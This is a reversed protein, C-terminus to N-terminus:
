KYIYQIREVQQPNDYSTRCIWQGTNDYEYYSDGDIRNGYEDYLCTLCGSTKQSNGFIRQYVIRTLYGYKDYEYLEKQSLIQNPSNVFLMNQHQSETMRGKDDYKNVTYGEMEGNKNYEKTETLLGQKNYSSVTYRGDMYKLSDSEISGDIGIRRARRYFDTKTKPNTKVEFICHGQPDYLRSTQVENIPQGNKETVSLTTTLQGKDNYTYSTTINGTSDTECCKILRGQTYYKVATPTSVIAQLIFPARLNKAQDRFEKYKHTCLFDQLMSLSESNVIAAKLLEFDAKESLYELEDLHTRATSTLYPSQKYEDIIQRIATANGKERLSDIGQFLFDDYLARVEPLFPRTDKDTFFKQMNANDFFAKFNASTPNSKVIQYLRKNEATNIQSIFKGNPYETIYTQYINLTPTKLMGELLAMERIDRVKQLITSDGPYGSSQISDMLTKSFPIQDKSAELISIVALEAKNQVNSLQIKEEECINPFYAKTAREYCGFYNTAAQESQENWLGNLVDLLALEEAYYTQTEDDIKDRNKQWKDADNDNLYKLLKELRSQKQAMAQPICAVLFLSLIISLFISRKM